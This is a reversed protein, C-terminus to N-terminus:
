AGGAPQEAAMEAMMAQVRQQLAPDRYATPPRVLNVVEAWIRHVDPARAALRTLATSFQMMQAFEAPREGTTDPYALDALATAWPAALVGPLERFFAAGLRGLPDDHGALDGLVRRLLLAEQAAVSMGQGYVPNFRCVADGMPLLGRPFDALREFHRWLNGPFLFRAIPGLLTADRIANFITPTRLSRAFEVFGAPDDPPVEGHRGVVMVIWRNGELPLILGSRGSERPNPFLLTSKWEAPADPPIAYVATAYAIRIGITTEGPLPRGTEELMRTTLAGRGSADIVLDAALVASEGEATSHRVGEVRAGDAGVTLAEARCGELLTVNAMGTVRRRLAEEILPRSASYITIGFDRQPLPDFGPWDLRADLGLCMPVAGAEALAEEFGPALEALARQGGLLLAHPHKGQPVGDRPVAQQPLRDRELVVIEGFHGALAAAAALGGVGGGIVVARSGMMKSM